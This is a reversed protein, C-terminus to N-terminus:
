VGQRDSPSEGGAPSQAEPFKQVNADAETEHIANVIALGDAQDLLDISLESDSCESVPKQVISLKEGNYNFGWACKTLAQNMLRVQEDLSLQKKDPQVNAEIFDRLGFKRVFVTAGSPLTILKRTRERYSM